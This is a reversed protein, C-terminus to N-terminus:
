DTAGMKQALDFKWPMTDVAIIKGAGTIRAGQVTSLGVGGCGIVVVSAGAPINVTNLAAGLGPAGTNRVSRRSFAKSVIIASTSASDPGSSDNSPDM